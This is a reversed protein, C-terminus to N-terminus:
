RDEERLGPNSEKSVELERLIGRVKEANEGDPSLELFAELHGTANEYDKLNVYCLGLNLRVMPDFPASYPVEILTKELLSAAEDYRGESYRISALNVYAEVISPHIKIAAEYFRAAKNTDGEARHINGLFYLAGHQLPDELIMAEFVRRAADRDGAALEASGEKQKVAMNPEIEFSERFAQAAEKFREQKLRARGLRQWADANMPDHRLSETLHQSAGEYDSKMFELVGLRFLAEPSEPCSELIEEYLEYAEDHRNASVLGLAEELRGEAACKAKQSGSESSTCAPFLCLTPVLFLVIGAM